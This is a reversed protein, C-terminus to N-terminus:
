GSPGMGAAQSAGAVGTANQPTGGNGGTTRRVDNAGLLNGAQVGNAVQDDPVVNVRFRKINKLGGLQAVWAFIGGMDYTQMIEPFNRMQGLLQNWMTVQAFRDVPMTGDVPVFDYFGSIMEPNVDLFQKGADMLDGAIKFKMEGDYYQQTNQLMMQSNPAMGTASFFEAQTKLRNLGMSNSSRVETATKRGGPNVAGMVNETVGTVRQMLDGLAQTDKLHNQTVDVTQLQQIMTRIDQGYATPKLRILRGGGESKFDKMTVRSPDVVFQGNSIQRVNYFHSNVLWTMADNLPDIMELMGRKHMGYGELEYEIVSYPFKGHLAGYPQSEIIVEDEALTFVWKEPYTGKGLGWDKPILEVHLEQLSVFTPSKDDLPPLSGDQTIAEPLELQSSGTDRNLARTDGRAKKLKRLPETNYYQGSEAGKVINNWGLDVNRGCFEGDQFNMMSVRSDFFFDFPRVNFIKNGQYGPVRQTEKVKETSGLIPIGLYSKQREVIRSVQRVEEDWYNGLVGVGYKGADMMWIYYPALHGGVQTQYDQIAEVAQIQHEAEGHRGAYQLVPSRSLFVSSIYTHWSMLMAYSFPIELTTFQPKGQDRQVRRLADTETEKMYMQFREENDAWESSKKSIAFEANHIRDRLAERIDDHTKSGYNLKFNAM